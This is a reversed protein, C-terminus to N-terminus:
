NIFLHITEEKPSNHIISIHFKTYVNKHTCINETRTSIYRPTSDRPWMAVRHKGKQPVGLSIQITSACKVDGDATHSLEVKEVDKNVRAITQTEKKKHYDEWHTHFPM